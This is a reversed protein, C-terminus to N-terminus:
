IRHTKHLKHYPEKGLTGLYVSAAILIAGFIFPPTLEEGLILIALGAAIAPEIYQLLNAKNVSTNSLGWEFLFYASISSLLTMYTLGLFGLLSINNIWGPTELYEKVAPIFFTVTGVMFAIATVVLSPYIKLMQKSFIGGLVWCFSACIILINGFLLTLSYDGLFFQPIEIIVAAGILGILIGALNILYIKERLFIWGLIVSLVPIILTLTSANIATTRSIGEFFFTINLTVMLIGVMILKPIHKKDIKVKKGQALFFPALFLAAFTFRLFALSMPPFEALTIKTVVFNGGWILHALLLAIFPFPNKFIQSSM